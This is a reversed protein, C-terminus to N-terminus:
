FNKGNVIETSFGGTVQQGDLQLIDYMYVQDLQWQDSWVWFIFGAPVESNLKGEGLLLEEKGFVPAMILDALSYKKTDYAHKKFSRFLATLREAYENKGTKLPRFIKKTRKDPMSIIVANKPLNKTVLKIVFKQQKRGNANFLLERPSTSGPPAPTGGISSEGGPGGTGPMEDLDLNRLAVKRNSIVLLDPDTIGAPNFADESSTTFAMLCSHSSASVPITFEWYAVRTTGPEIRSIPFSAGVPNWAVVGGPMWTFPNTLLGAPFPPLGGAAPAFFARVQVNTVAFPGKNHVNVYVRNVGRRAGLHVVNDILTLPDTVIAATQNSYDVVIDPSQWHWCQAGSVYPHAVGDLAPRNGSNAIHTRMYLFYDPCSLADLSREWMGRGYTAARIKRSAQHIALKIIPANPLGQDFSEWASLLVNWKFIGWDGGCYVRSTDAPDCIISNIPNAMALGTYRGAWVMSGADLRFVHHNLFEGTAESRMLDSLSVWINGVNDIATCSIGAGAPLGTLTINETTVTLTTWAGAPPGTLRYVQGGVTGVVLIRANSPHFAITRIHSALDNTISVWTTGNDESRKVQLGGTYVHGSAHPSTFFPIWWETGPFNTWFHTFLKGADTSRSTSGEPGTGYYHIYPNFPDIQAVVGDGDMSNHTVGPMVWHRKWIPAGAYHFGGNDQAGAIMIAEHQPHQGFDYLQVSSIDLNRAQWSTCTDPSYFVGGDCGVFLRSYLTPHFTVARCDAHVRPGSTLSVNTWSGAVAGTTSKFVDVVALIVTEPDSPHPQISLNYTAQYIRGTVTSPITCATWGAGWNSSRAVHALMNGGSGEAFAAYIHNPQTKCVGMVINMTGAPMGPVTVDSFSGWGAVTHSATVIGVASKGVFLRKVGPEAPNQVLVVDTCVGPTLITWAGGSTTSEWLGNSAAVFINSTDSPNVIIKSIEALDFNMGGILTWTDGHNISKLIGRGYYTGYDSGPVQEGTGAYIINTSVPDIAISGIAISVQDDTKPVWSAGSDISKWLGGAATGAYMRSPTLPDIALCRIRGSNNGHVSGKGNTFPAPGMPTWNCGGAVPTSFFVIGGPATDDPLHRNNRRLLEKRITEAIGDPWREKINRAQKFARGRYYPKDMKSRPADKSWEIRQEITFSAVASRGEGTQLAELKYNGTKISSTFIETTFSGDKDPVILGNWLSGQLLRYPFKKLGGIQLQIADPSFNFGRAYLLYGQQIKRASLTLSPKFKKATSTTQIKMFSTKLNNGM